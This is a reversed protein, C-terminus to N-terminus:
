GLMPGIYMMNYKHIINYLIYIYIYTHIYLYIWSGMQLYSKVMVYFEMGSSLFPHNKFHPM